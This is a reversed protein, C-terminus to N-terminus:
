GAKVCIGLLADKGQEQVVASNGIDCREALEQFAANGEVDDSILVGGPRLYPWVAEFEGRMNRYTHLSDHIFLDIFGLRALLPSLVRSSVGRHLAWRGRLEPPILRGVHKDGDKGLPPLDVSHLHGAQNTDLAKLIYASTVGYCVGTELVLRPKLARTTAYCLRALASDGNHFAEFPGDQLLSAQGDRVQLEIQTLAPESLHAACDSNLARSLAVLAEELNTARYAVPAGLSAEWRSTAIAYVRDYFEQPRQPLLSLLRLPQMNM